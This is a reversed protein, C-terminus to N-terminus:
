GRWPPLVLDKHVLVRVPFGPRVTITPAIDLNREVIRQGARNTNSQVSERIARVLDSEADGFSLETGVGLLTSLAIGRALQWSHFDVRDTLGSQGSADTAPASDLVISAGDPMILRDWVVMARRQGFAVKAEYRGLLRAGQPILTARGTASDFVAETVQAVVLGPLDSNLGTLLSAAIVSGATVQWRSAPAALRGPDPEANRSPSGEPAAIPGGRAESPVNATGPARSMQALVPANRAEMLETRFREAAAAEPRAEVDRYDRPPADEMAMERQHALIPRGLDGPLPPGLEPVPAADGYGQPLRSLEEPATENLAPSLDAQESALRLGSPELAFWSVAAIATLAAAAAGILLGKRFRVIRQPAARLALAEPDPALKREPVRSGPDAIDPDESRADTALQDGRNATLPENAPFAQSM